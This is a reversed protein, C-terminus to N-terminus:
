RRYRVSVRAARVDLTSSLTGTRREAEVAFALQNRQDLLRRLRSGQVVHLPSFAEGPLTPVDRGGRFAGGLWPLLGVAVPSGDDDTARAEADFTVELLEARELSADALAVRCVVAPRGEEVDLEWLADSGAGAPSQGGFAVVRHRLGDWAVAPLGLTPRSGDDDPDPLDASRPRRMLEDRRWVAFQGERPDFLDFGVAVTARLPPVSVLGGSLLDGPTFDWSTGDFSAFGDENTLVRLTDTSPDWAGHGDLDLTPGLTSAVASDGSRQWLFTPSGYAAGILGTGLRPSTMPALLPHAPAEGGFTLSPLERWGRGDLAFARGLTDFDGPDGGWMWLEDASDPYRALGPRNRPAPLMPAPSWDRGDFRWADQLAYTTPQQGGVLVLGGGQPAMAANWRGSPAESTRHLLECHGSLDCRRFRLVDDEVSTLLFSPGEGQREPASVLGQATETTAEGLPVWGGARWAFLRSGTDDGVSAWLDFTAPHSALRVTQSCPLDDGSCSSHHLRRWRWSEGASEGRWTEVDGSEGGDPFRPHGVAVMAPGGDDHIFAMSSEGLWPLGGDEVSGAELRTWARNAWRWLERPPVASDDRGGLMLVGGHEPDGALAHGYRRGPRSPDGDACTDVPRLQQGDWVWTDCLSTLFGGGFLVPEGTAPDLAMAHSARVIPMSRAQSHPVLDTGDFRLLKMDTDSSGLLLVEGRAVDHVLAPYAFADFGPVAPFRRKWTGQGLVHAIGNSGPVNLRRLRRAEDDETLLRGRQYPRSSCLTTSEGATPQSSWIGERVVAVTSANGASDILQVQLAPVDLAPLVVAREVRPDVEAEVLLGGAEGQRAVRLVGPEAVAGAPVRLLFQPTNDTGIGDPHRLHVLAEAGAVRPPAPPESDVPLPEVGGALWLVAANGVVDVVEVGIRLAAGFGAPLEGEACPRGPTGVPAARPTLATRPGQRSAAIFFRPAIGLPEDFTACVRLPSGTAATTVVRGAWPSLPGARLEVEPLGDFAPPRADVEFSGVAQAPAVVGRASTLVVRATLSGELNPAALDPRFTCRCHGEVCPACAFPFQESTGPTSGAPVLSATAVPPAGLPGQAEFELVYETHAAGRAPTLSASTATPAEGPPGERVCRGLSEVCRFGSPCPPAGPTTACAIAPEGPLTEDFTCAALALVVVLLLPLRPVPRRLATM